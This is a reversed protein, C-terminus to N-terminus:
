YHVNSTTAKAEGWLHRTQDMLELSKWFFEGRLKGTLRQFTVLLGLLFTTLDDELSGGNKWPAFKSTLSRPPPLREIAPGFIQTSRTKRHLFRMLSACGFRSHVSTYRQLCLNKSTPPKLCKNIKMGIQPLNGKQSINKLHTSVM